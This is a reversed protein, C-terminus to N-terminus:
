CTRIRGIARHTGKYIIYTKNSIADGRVAKPSTRPKAKIRRKIDSRSGDKSRGTYSINRKGTDRGTELKKHRSQGACREKRWGKNESFSYLHKILKFKVDAM